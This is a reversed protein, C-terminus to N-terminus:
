ILAARALSRWQCTLRLYDNLRLRRVELRSVLPGSDDQVHSTSLTAEVDAYDCASIACALDLRWGADTAAVWADAMVTPEPGIWQGSHGDLVLDWHQVIGGTRVELGIAFRWATDDGHAPVLDVGISFAEGCCRKALMTHRIRSGKTDGGIQWGSAGPRDVVRVPAGIWPEADFAALAALQAATKM